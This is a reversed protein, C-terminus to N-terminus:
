KEINNRIYEVTETHGYKEALIMADITCEKGIEHLYKLVELHGNRAADDMKINSKNNKIYELIIPEMEKKTKMPSKVIICSSRWKNGDKVMKVENGKSDYEPIEVEVINDGFRFFKYINELDTFYLGGDSCIKSSKDFEKDLDNKEDLKYQYGNHNMEKNLVKYYM